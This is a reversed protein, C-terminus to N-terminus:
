CPNYFQIRPFRRKKCDRRPASYGSTRHCLYIKDTIAFVVMLGFSFLCLLILNYAPSWIRSLEFLAELDQAVHTLVLHIM